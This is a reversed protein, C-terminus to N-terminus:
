DQVIFLPCVCAFVCMPRCKFVDHQLAMAKRSYWDKWGHVQGHSIWAVCQKQLCTSTAKLSFKLNPSYLSYVWLRGGMNKREIQWWRQQRGVEQLFFHRHRGYDVWRGGGSSGVGWGTQWGPHCGRDRCLESPLPHDQLHNYVRPICLVWKVTHCFCWVGGGEM